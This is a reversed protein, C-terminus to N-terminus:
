SGPESTKVGCDRVRLEWDVFGELDKEFGQGYRFM